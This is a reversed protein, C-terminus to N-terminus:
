KNEKDYKANVLKAIHELDNIPANYFEHNWLFYDDREPRKYKLCTEDEWVKKWLSKSSKASSLKKLIAIIMEGRKLGNDDENQTFYQHANESKYACLPFGNYFIMDNEMYCETGRPLNADLNCIAKQKFRKYIIYRM